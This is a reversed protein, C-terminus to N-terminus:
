LAHVPLYGSAPVPHLDTGHWDDGRATRATQPFLPHEDFSCGAGCFDSFHRDEGLELLNRM